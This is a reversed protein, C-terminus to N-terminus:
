SSTHTHGRRTNQTAVPTILLAASPVGPFFSQALVRVVRRVTALGQGRGFHLLFLKQSDGPSEVM